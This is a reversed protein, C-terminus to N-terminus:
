SEDSGNVSNKITLESQHTIQSEKKKEFDSENIKEFHFEEEELESSTEQILKEKQITSSIVPKEFKQNQLILALCCNNIQMIPSEILLSMPVAVLFSLILAAFFYFIALRETFYIAQRVQIYFWIIVVTHVLYIMFTIKAWPAWVSGGFVFRVLRSKGVMAGALFMGLASVFLVRHFANFFNSAMQPWVVRNAVRTETYTIVIFFVMVGAGTFHLVFRLIRSGEITNFIIAGPLKRLEPNKKAKMWESYLIGFLCGVFYAGFRTYPQHYIERIKSDKIITIPHHHAAALSFAVIMSAVILFCSLIYGMLKSRCYVIIVIPLFMFFLMDNALYWLINMCNITGVPPYFNNVFILITWWYKKCPEILFFHIQDFVPGSGTFMMFTLIFAIFLALTPILRFFRHFYIMVFNKISQNKLKPIMLYAGLFASLFFFTDVAYFAGMVIMGNLNTVLELAAEPNILPPGQFSEHTHGLIIYAMSLVRIGNLVSLYDNKGQPAWFMKRLNRSFSFALLARGPLSKSRVLEKDKKGEDGEEIGQYNPTGFLNTYEVIIGTICVLFLGGFFIFGIINGTTAEYPKAHPLSVKGKLPLGKSKALETIADEIM